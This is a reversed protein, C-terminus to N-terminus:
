FDAIKLRFGRKHIRRVKSPEFTSGMSTVPVEARTCSEDDRAYQPDELFKVPDFSAAGGREKQPVM